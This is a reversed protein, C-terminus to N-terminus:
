SLCFYGVRALCAPNRSGLAAFAANRLLQVDRLCGPHTKVEPENMYISVGDKSWRNEMEKFKYALFGRGHRNRWKELMAYVAETQEQRAMLPRCELVATATVFDDKIITALESLARCSAGVQFGCDWLATEYKQWAAQIEDPIKGDVIAVLDLDSAPNLEGRGYGGLAFLGVQSQLSAPLAGFVRQWLTLVVEDTVATLNMTIDVGTTENIERHSQEAIAAFRSKREAKLELVIERM